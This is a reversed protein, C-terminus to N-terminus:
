FTTIFFKLITNLPLILKLAHLSLYDPLKFTVEAVFNDKGHLLRQHATLSKKIRFSFLTENDLYRSKQAKTFDVSKLTQSTMMFMAVYHFNCKQKNRKFGLNQQFLILDFVLSNYALCKQCTKPEISFVLFQDWVRKIIKNFYCYLSIQGNKVTSM